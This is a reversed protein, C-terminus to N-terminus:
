SPVMAAQLVKWHHTLVRLTGRELEAQAPIKLPSCHGAEKDIGSEAGKRNLRKMRQVCYKPGRQGM